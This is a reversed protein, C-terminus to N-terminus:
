PRQRLDAPMGDGAKLKPSYPPSAQRWPRTHLDPIM